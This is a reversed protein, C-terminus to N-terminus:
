SAALGRARALTALIHTLTCIQQAQFLHLYVAVKESRRIAANGFSVGIFTRAGRTLRIYCIRRVGWNVAFTDNFSAPHMDIRVQSPHFTAKM